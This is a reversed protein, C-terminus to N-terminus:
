RQCHHAKQNLHKEIKGIAETVPGNCGQEKLGKLCALMAYTHLQLEGYLDAIDREHQARLALIEAAEKEDERDAVEDRRELRHKILSFVGSVIAAGVGGGIIALLAEKIGM